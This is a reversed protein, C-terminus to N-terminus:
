KPLYFVIYLSGALDVTVLSILVASEIILHRKRLTFLLRLGAANVIGMAVIASIPLVTWVMKPNAVSTAWYLILSIVAITGIDLLWEWKHRYM